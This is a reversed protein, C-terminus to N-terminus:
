LALRDNLPLENGSLTVGGSFISEAIRVLGSERWESFYWAPHM